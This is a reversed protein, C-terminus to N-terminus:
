FPTIFTIILQSSNTFFTQDIFTLWYLLMTYFLLFAFVKQLVSDSSAASSKTTPVVGVVIPKSAISQYTPAPHLVEETEEVSGDSNTVIRKRSAHTIRASTLPATRNMSKQFSKDLLSPSVQDSTKEYLKNTQKDYSSELTSKEATKLKTEEPVKSTINLNKTVKEQNFPKLIHKQLIAPKARIPPKVTDQILTIPRDTVLTNDKFVKEQAYEDLSSGESSLSSHSSSDLNSQRSARGSGESTTSVHSLTPTVSKPTTTTDLKLFQAKSKALLEKTEALSPTTYSSTYPKAYSTAFSPSTYSSSSYPSTYSSTYSTTYSPSTCSSTYATYSTYTPATYSSSTYSPSTHSSFTENKLGKKPITVEEIESTKGATPFVKTQPTVVNTEVPPLTTSTFLNSPKNINKKKVKSSDTSEPRYTFALATGKKGDELGYFDSSNEESIPSIKGGHEEM